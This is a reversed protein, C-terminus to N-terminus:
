DQGTSIRRAMATFRVSAAALLGVGQAIRAGGPAPPGEATILEVLGGLFENREVLHEFADVLMLAERQVWSPDDGHTIVVADVV